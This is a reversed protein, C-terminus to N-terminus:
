SPCGHSEHTPARRPQPPDDGRVRDVAQARPEPHTASDSATKSWVWLASATAASSKAPWARGANTTGASTARTSAERAGCRASRATSRRPRRSPPARADQQPVERQGGDQARPARRCRRAPRLASSRVPPPARRARAHSDGLRGALPSPDRPGDRAPAGLLGLSRGVRREVDGERDREDSPGASPPTARRPRPRGRRATRSTPRRGARAARQQEVQVRVDLVGAPSETRARRRPRRATVDVLRGRQAASSTPRPADREDEELGAPRDLDGECPSAARRRCRSRGAGSRQPTPATSPLM